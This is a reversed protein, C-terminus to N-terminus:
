LNGAAVRITPIEAGKQKLYKDFFQLLSTNILEFGIMQNKIHQPARNGLYKAAVTGETAFDWHHHEPNDILLQHKIHGALSDYLNVMRNQDYQQQNYSFFLPLKYSNHIYYPAKSIIIYIDELFIGSEILAVANFDTSQMGALFPSVGNGSFGLLASENSTIGLSQNLYERANKFNEIENDVQKLYAKEDSPPFNEVPTLMCVVYGYSALMENTLTTSFARLRGIIVPFRGPYYAAYHHAKSNVKLFDQWRGEEIDGYWKTLTKKLENLGTLKLSDTFLPDSSLNNYAFASLPIRNNLMDMTPYWLNLLLSDSTEPTQKNEILIQRFGVAYSGNAKGTYNILILIMVLTIRLLGM